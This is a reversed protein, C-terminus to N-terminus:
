DGTPEMENEIGKTMSLFIDHIVDHAREFMAMVEDVDPGIPEVTTVNSDMVIAPAGNVGGEAFTMALSLSEMPVTVQLFPKISAGKALHKTIADPLVVNIGLVEGLFRGVDLDRTLPPRFADIYRLSLASFPAAQEADERAGLLAVVGSRVVPRFEAWHRYPPTANATFLGPGVQYLVPLKKDSSKFRYVPQSNVVPFGPPILREANQFGQQYLEAGFRMYLTEHNNGGFQVRIGGAVPALAPSAADNWRLEAILEVLPANKFSTTM